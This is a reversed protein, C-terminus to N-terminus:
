KIPTLREILSIDVKKDNSLTYESLFVNYNIVMCTDKGIVYTNGVNAKM